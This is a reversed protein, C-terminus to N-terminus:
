FNMVKSVLEMRSNVGTKEFIHSVHTRATTFSIFLKNGIEKNSYGKLILELVEAERPSIKFNELFFKDAKTRDPITGLRTLYQLVVSVSVLSWMGMYLFDLSIVNVGRTGFLHISIYLIASLPAFLMTILGMRKILIQIAQNWNKDIGKWFTFGVFFLYFSILSIMYPYIAATLEEGKLYYIITRLIQLFFVLATPVLAIRQSINKMQTLIRFILYYILLAIIFGIIVHIASPINNYFKYSRLYSDLLIRGVSFLLTLFLIFLYKTLTIKLSRHLFGISASGVCGLSFLLIYSILLVSEM